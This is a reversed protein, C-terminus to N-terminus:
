TLPQFDAAENYENGSKESKKTQWYVKMKKGIAARCKESSLEDTGDGKWGNIVLPWFKKGTGLAKENFFVTGGKGKEPGDFIRLAFNLNVSKDTAAEKETYDVVETPQWSPKIVEGKLLDEKTVVTRFGM